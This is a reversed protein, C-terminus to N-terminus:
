WLDCHALTSALSSGRPTARRQDNCVLKILEKRWRDPVTSASTLESWLYPVGAQVELPKLAEVASIQQEIMRGVPAGSYADTCGADGGSDFAVPVLNQGQKHLWVGFCGSVGYGAGQTLLGHELGLASAECVASLGWASDALLHFPAM